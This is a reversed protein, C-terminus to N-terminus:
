KPLVFGLDFSARIGDLLTKLFYFSVLRTPDRKYDIKGTRRSVPLSKDKNKPIILHKLLFTPVKAVKKEDSNKKLRDILLNHYEGVIAGTAKEETATFHFDLFNLIGSEIHFRGLNEASPNLKPLNLNEIVGKIYYINKRLPARITAKILGANMISGEVFTNSYDPDTKYPHNIMPSMTINVKTLQLYGTQNGTKPFEESIINANNIRFTNVRVQVPIQQLYGNPMPQEKLQRPLRRDRFFYLNSNNMSVENAVLKKHLLQQWNLKSIQINHIAANIYDAQRGLKKGFEYKSYQTTIKVDNMKLSATKSDAILNNIHVNRYPMSYNINALNCNFSAFNFNSDASKNLDTLVLNEIKFQNINKQHLQINTGTIEFRHISFKKVPILDISKSNTGLSEKSINQLSVSSNKIIFSDIKIEDIFQNLNFAQTSPNQNSKPDSIDANIENILVTGAILKKNELQMVNFKSGQINSISAQMRSASNNLSGPMIKVSDMKLFEKRSDISLQKIQLTQHLPALTYNIDSFNCLVSTFHFIKEASKSNNLKINDVNIMGKLVLKNGKDSHAWVSANNIEFHNISINKFPMKASFNYQLADKKDLLLQDVQILGQTLNLKSISLNKNLVIKLFNMGTLEAKSFKIVHQHNSDTSVPQVKILLNNLTLASAFLDAHISSFSVKALPALQTLQQKVKNEIIRDLVPHAILAIFFICIIILAIIKVSRRQSKKKTVEAKM